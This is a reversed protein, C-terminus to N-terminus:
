GTENGCSDLSLRELRVSCMNFGTSEWFRRGGTNYLLVDLYVRIGPNCLERIFLELCRTGVGQRRHGRNVYFQRIYTGDEDSRYLLYAIPRGETEFLIASYSNTLWRRMREALQPLNMPNASGEDEILALNLEALVGLDDLKAHRYSLEM